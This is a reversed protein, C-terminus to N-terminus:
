MREVDPLAWTGDFFPETPSYLRFMLYFGRGPVTEVWNSEQGSPATPGFYMDFSGDATTRLEDYSAHAADNTPNQVM